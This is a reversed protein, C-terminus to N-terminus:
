LSQIGKNDYTGEWDLSTFATPFPSDAILNFEFLNGKAFIPITAQANRLLPISNPATVNATIQPLTLTFDPRGTAKVLTKYPGSNYSNVKIRNVTPINVTDKLARTEERVFYFAPLQATAEYKFGIAFRSATQDGDVTLFYRQGIPQSLDVQMSQEEFYGAQDPNLYILVAQLDMSEFGDKFCIHTQDATADYVLTPTYDFYDLRVDLYEGEFLLSESPTETILSVTSLIYNSGNKTVIYLIDQDFDFHEVDNPMNWRFWGSIRSDGNQFFRYLYLKNLQIQSLLGITGATQSVKLESVANPIYTPILRTLEIVTPKGGVNDNIGMEYVASAKEGEEVFVVSTGIDIPNLDEQLSLTSLLNIEATRSSFAETTTELIYQGNDGFLLLGRSTSLTGKLRIPKKSSASIDIPDSDVFTIVTSAFFNFYDGAQSCIVNQRSTFIIRNKFFSITDIPFKVFSPMPNTVTDGVERPKWYRLRSEDGELLQSTITAIQFTDGQTNQVIDLVTYNQGAKVISVEDIVGTKTEVAQVGARSTGSVTQFSTNRTYTINGVTVSDDGAITTAILVNNAYYAWTFINSQVYTSSTALYNTTITDTRLKTVKLRLGSGTGGTPEFQEDLVHGVSSTTAINVSSALGPVLSSGASAIASAEDLKRYTFTGNAERIIVHPLTDEDINLAIEPGITEEWVGTGNPTNDSTKFIVWYDDAGTEASGSVKLKSNNIFQKPLQGVATVSDKFADISTGSQGGNAQIGFDSNDARRIYITNGIGTAVWAPNANISSVLGNVIDAVNLQTTSTTPTAYSFPTSDLKINYTSSYAVTNISVFGFPIQAPSEVTGSEVTVTRNLVFIFDNIQLLQLDQQSDHVAYATASADVANITQEIGTFASWIKLAGAKTFQGIYKEEDDRFITFWTGNDAANSLKNIAQLGPRKTLGTAVDPYFNDCVRLQNTFKVTDPQQSVGGIISSIKQSIAAM